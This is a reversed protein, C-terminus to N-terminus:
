ERLWSDRRDMGLAEAAEQARGYQGAFSGDTKFAKVPKSTSPGSSKRKKNNQYSRRINESPTAWELNEPLCNSPDMDLHDVQTKNEGTGSRDNPCFALAVVRHFLQLKGNIRVVRRVDETPKPVKRHGDRDQFRM